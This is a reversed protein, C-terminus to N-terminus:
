GKLVSVGTGMTLSAPPVGPRLTTCFFFFFFFFFFFTQKGHQSDFGPRGDRREYSCRSIQRRRKFRISHLTFITIFSTWAIATRIWNSNSLRICPFPRVRIRSTQETAQKCYDPWMFDRRGIRSFSYILRALVRDHIASQKVRNAAHLGNSRHAPMRSVVIFAVATVPSSLCQGSRPLIFLNRRCRVHIPVTNSNISAVYETRNTLVLPLLWNHDRTAPRDITPLMLISASSTTLQCRSTFFCFCM